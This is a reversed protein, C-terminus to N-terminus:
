VLGLGHKSLRVKDLGFGLRFEILEVSGTLSSFFFSPWGALLHRRPRRPVRLAVDTPPLLAPPPGRTLGPPRRRRRGPAAPAALPLRRRDAARRRDLLLPRRGARRRARRGGRVAGAGRGQWWCDMPWQVGDWEKRISINVRNYRGVLPLDVLKFALNRNPVM